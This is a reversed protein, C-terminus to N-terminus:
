CVLSIVDKLAQKPCLDDRKCRMAAAEEIGRIHRLQNSNLHDRTSVNDPLGLSERFAKAPVGLIAKNVMDSVQIYIWRKYNDSVDHTAIYADICDTWFNRSVIGDRRITFRENREQETRIKGFATDARRELSEATCALLLALIDLHGLRILSGLASILDQESISAYSYGIGEIKVSQNTEQNGTLAKISYPSKKNSLITKDRGILDAIFKYDYRYAGGPMQFCDLEVDGLTITARVAKVTNNKMHQLFTLIEVIAFVWGTTLIPQTNTYLPKKTKPAILVEITILSLFPHTKKLRLIQDKSHFPNKLHHM